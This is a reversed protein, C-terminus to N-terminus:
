ASSPMRSVSQHSSNLRTSKRDTDLLPQLVSADGGGDLAAQLQERLAKISASQGDLLVKVSDVVTRQEAIEQANRDLRAQMDAKFDQITKTVAIDKRAATSLHTLIADLKRDVRERFQQQRERERYVSLGRTQRRPM